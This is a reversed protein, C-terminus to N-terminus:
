KPETYGETGAEKNEINNEISIKIALANAGETNVSDITGMVENVIGGV